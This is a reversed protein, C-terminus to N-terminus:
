GSVRVAQWVKHRVAGFGAPVSVNRGSDIFLSMKRLTGVHNQVTKLDMGLAQALTPCIVEGGIDLCKDYVLRTATGERPLLQKRKKRAPVANKPVGHVMLRVVHGFPGLAIEEAEEEQKKCDIASVVPDLMETILSM